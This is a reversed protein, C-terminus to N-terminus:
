DQHGFLLFFLLLNIHFDGKVQVTVDTVKYYAAPENRCPFVLALVAM